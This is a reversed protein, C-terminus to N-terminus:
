ISLAEESQRLIRHAKPRDLRGCANKGGVCMRTVLVVGVMAANEWCNGTEVMCTIGRSHVAPISFQTLQRDVGDSGYARAFLHGNRITEVPHLALLPLAM